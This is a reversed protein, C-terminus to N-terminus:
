TWGVSHPSKPTWANKGTVFANKRLVDYAGGPISLSGWGDVVNLRHIAIRFRLSDPRVPFSAIFAPPFEEPSHWQLLGSSIQNIDFANMPARREPVPPNYRFLANVGIGYPDLGNHAVFGVTTPTAIYYEESNPGPATLLSAEPVWASVSGESAPRYIITQTADASLGTFDWDQPGPPTLSGIAGPSYDIAFRLTDGAVPFTASTVTIQASVTGACMLLVLIPLYKKM